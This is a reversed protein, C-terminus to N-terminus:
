KIVLVPTKSTNVIERGVSGLLMEQVRGLGRAGIVILDFNENDAIETIVIAPRGEEIRTEVSIQIDENKISLMASNMEELVRSLYEDHSESAWLDYQSGFPFKFEEIVAIVHLEAEHIEALDISHQLAKMSTKM